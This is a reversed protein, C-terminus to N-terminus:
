LPLDPFRPPRAHHWDVVLVGFVVLVWHQEVGISGLAGIRVSLHIRHECDIALWYKFGNSVFLLLYVFNASFQAYDQM